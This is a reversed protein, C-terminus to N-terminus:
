VLVGLEVGLLDGPGGVLLHQWTLSVTPSIPLGAGTAGPRSPGLSGRGPPAPRQAVVELGVGEEAQQDGGRDEEADPASVLVVKVEAALM